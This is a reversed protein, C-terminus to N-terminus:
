PKRPIAVDQGDRHLVLGSASFTYRDIAPKSSTSFFETDSSPLLDQPPEDNKKITLHDAVHEVVLVSGGIEYSGAYGDLTASDVHVAHQARPPRPPLQDHPTFGEWAIPTDRNGLLQEILAAYIGEGNSSNTMILLGNGRDFAVVYHRWGDDHGEKFFAHGQSTAYVGWGLGYGLQIKRNADSTEPALTPFEHASDIAIQMRLMEARAAASLGTGRMVASVLKAYDALTTQMGGAARAKTRRSPGLSTGYEDYGNAFDREFAPQWIMSTRTMGLPHFVRAQMLQELPVDTITEVVRQLLEIGEGSYAFKTGPEFHFALKHDDELWRWNAFGSTHDLLMRATLKAVRPDGALDAYDPDDALPKPLYDQIPKDLDLQHADVLKMVLYAFAAKTLSAASMVSEPTLPLHHATDREGYARVLVPEGHEFIAIGVGTVEGAKMERAVVRDIESRSIETGDLRALEGHVCGALLALVVLWRM